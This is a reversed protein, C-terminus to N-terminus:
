GVQSRRFLLRDNTETSYDIQMKEVPLELFLKALRGHPPFPHGIKVSFCDNLWTKLQGAPSLSERHWGSHTTDVYGVGGPKILAFLTRSFSRDSFGYYWCIRNFVLDYDAKLLKLAEDMYGISFEIAVGHDEAKQEAIKAYAASIDHWTVLAGRKAFAVSYQGPGGGLDLVKKGSFGGLWCELENLLVENAGIVWESEAYQQAHTEPVPDWDPIAKSFFSAFKNIIM